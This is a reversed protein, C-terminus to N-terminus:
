PPSCGATGCSSSRPLCRFNGAHISVHGPAGASTVSPLPCSPEFLVRAKPVPGRGQGSQRVPLRHRPDPGPRVRGAGAAPLRRADPRARRGATRAVPVAPLALGSAGRRLRAAPRPVADRANADGPQLIFQGPVFALPQGDTRAFMDHGVSPAIMGREGLTPPVPCHGLPVSQHGPLWAPRRYYAIAQGAPRRGRM